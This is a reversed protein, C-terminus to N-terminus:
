SEVRLIPREVNKDLTEAYGLLRINWYEDKKAAEWDKTEAYGLLRNIWYEDKKAPEFNKYKSLIFSSFEAPANQLVYGIDDLEIFPIMGDLQGSNWAEAIEKPLDGDWFDRNERDMGEFPKLNYYTRIAGHGLFDNDKREKLREKGYESNIDNETLFFIKGEHEVWSIFECM